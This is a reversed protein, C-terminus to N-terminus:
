SQRCNCPAAVAQDYGVRGPLADACQGSLDEVDAGPVAVGRAQYTSKQPESIM